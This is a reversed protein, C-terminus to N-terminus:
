DWLGLLKGGTERAAENSLVARYCHSRYWFDDNRLTLASWTGAVNLHLVRCLCAGRLISVIGSLCFRGAEFVNLDVFFRSRGREQLLHTDAVVGHPRTVRSLARFLSRLALRSGGAVQPRWDDLQGDAGSVLCDCQGRM